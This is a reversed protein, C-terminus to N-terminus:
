LFAEVDQKKKTKEEEFRRAILELDKGKSTFEATRKRIKVFIPSGVAEGVVLAEGVRLTTISDLMAKDIGECSEGVHEIDFPNTMRLIINTNCNHTLFGNAFFCHTDPITLDRVDDVSAPAKSSIKEWILGDGLGRCNKALWEEFSPM